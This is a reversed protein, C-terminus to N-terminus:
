IHSVMCIFVNYGLSSTNERVQYRGSESSSGRLVARTGHSICPLVAMVVIRLDQFVTRFLINHWGAERRHEIFRDFLFYGQAFVNVLGIRRYRYERQVARMRDFQVGAIVLHRIECIKSSVKLAEVVGRRKKFSQLNSIVLDLKIFRRRM